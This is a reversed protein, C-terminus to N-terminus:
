AAVEYMRALHSWEMHSLYFLLAMLGGETTVQYTHQQYQVIVSFRRNESV